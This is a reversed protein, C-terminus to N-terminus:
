SIMLILPAIVLGGVLRAFMLWGLVMLVNGFVDVLITGLSVDLSDDDALWGGIWVFILPVTSIAIGMLPSGRLLHNPLFAGVSCILWLALAIKRKWNLEFFFSSESDYFSDDFGPFPEEFSQAHPPSDYTQSYHEAAAPQAYPEAAASRLLSEYAEQLEKFRAEASRKRKPNLDPHFKRALRRYASKIEDRTANPKVGLVKFHDKDSYLM